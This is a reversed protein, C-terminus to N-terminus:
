QGEGHPPLDYFRKTPIGAKEAMYATGSAGHSPHAGTRKCRPSTCASLFALCVDAGLSVMYANREPGASRGKSWDAPYVEETIDPQTKAWAKALYDAGTPCDGHVVTANIDASESLANWVAERDGWSRSGTVLVRMNAM